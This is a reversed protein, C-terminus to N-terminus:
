WPPSTEKFNKTERDAKKAELERLYGEYMETQEDLKRFYKMRHLEANRSWHCASCLPRTNSFVDEGGDELPIIHDLEFHAKTENEYVGCWHCRLPGLERWRRM